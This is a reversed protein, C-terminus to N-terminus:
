ASTSVLGHHVEIRSRKEAQMQDEVRDFIPGWGNFTILNFKKCLNFLKGLENRLPALKTECSQDVSLMQKALEDLKYDVLGKVDEIKM